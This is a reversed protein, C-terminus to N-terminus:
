STDASSAEEQLFAVKTGRRVGSPARRWRSTQGPCPLRLPGLDKRRPIRTASEQALASGHHLM